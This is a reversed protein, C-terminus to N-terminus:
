RHLLSALTDHEHHEPPQCNATQTQQHRELLLSVVARSKRTKSRCQNERCLVNRSKLELNGPDMNNPNGDRHCVVHSPPVKKNHAREWITRGLLRRGHEKTWAVGEVHCGDEMWFWLRNDWILGQSLPPIRVKWNRSPLGKNAAKAIDWAAPAGYDFPTVNSSCPLAPMGPRDLAKRVRRIYDMRKGITWRKWVQRLVAPVRLSTASAIIAELEEATPEAVPIVQGTKPDKKSAGRPDKRIELGRYEFLRRMDNGTRGGHQRGIATLSAGEMYEAHAARVTADTLKSM